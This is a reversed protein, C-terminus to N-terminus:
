KPQRPKEFIDCNVSTTGDVPIIAVYHQNSSTEFQVLTDAFIKRGKNPPNLGGDPLTNAAVTGADTGTVFRTDADCQIEYTWGGKIALNPVPLPNAPGVGGDPLTSFGADTVYTLTNVLDGEAYAKGMFLLVVGLSLSLLVAVLKSMRM